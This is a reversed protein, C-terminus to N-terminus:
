ESVVQLEKKLEQERDGSLLGEVEQRARERAEELLTTQERGKSRDKAPTSAESKQIFRMTGGYEKIPGRMGRWIKKLLDSKEGMKM